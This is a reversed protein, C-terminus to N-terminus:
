GSSEFVGPFLVWRALSSVRPLLRASHDLCVVNPKEPSDARLLNGVYHRRALETNPRRRKLPLPKRFNQLMRYLPAFAKIRVSLWKMNHRYIHQLSHCALQEPNAVQIAYAGRPKRLYVF